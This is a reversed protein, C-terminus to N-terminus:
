KKGGSRLLEMLGPGLLDPSINLHEVHTLKSALEKAALAVLVSPPLAEYAKLREREIALEAGEVLTLNEAKSEAMIKGTRARGTAEIARKEAEENAKRRANEGHEDILLREQRALEIRNKMENEAIARENQVALARREFTAEDAVQQLEEHVPTQLARELEPSPMVSSVQVDVVELGMESLFSLARLGGVLHEQVSALGDSLLTRIDMTALYRMAIQQAHDTFFTALQDLPDNRYEGRRLDISFDVREALLAPNEIRYAITGQVTVEQFDSSRGRFIYPLHQDNIPLESVAAHMPRFWFTQGPGRSHLTGRHYRLVFSNPEARLHRFFPFNRIDAMIVKHQLSVFM